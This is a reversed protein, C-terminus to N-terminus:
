TAIFIMNIQLIKSKPGDPEDLNIASLLKFDFLDNAHFTGSSGIQNNRLDHIVEQSLKDRESITRGWVRIELTINILQHESQIGLPNSDLNIDKITILPYRTPREPYSTMVFKHGSPRSIPDSINSDLFDKVFFLTDGLITQSNVM